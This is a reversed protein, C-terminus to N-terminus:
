DGFCCQYPMAPNECSGQEDVTWKECTNMDFQEVKDDQTANMNGAAVEPTLSVPLASDEDASSRLAGQLSGVIASVLLALFMIGIVLAAIPFTSKMAIGHSASAPRKSM